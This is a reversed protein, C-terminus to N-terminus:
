LMLAFNFRVQIEEQVKNDDTDYRDILSKVKSVFGIPKKKKVIKLSKLRKMNYHSTYHM